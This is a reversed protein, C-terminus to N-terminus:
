KLTYPPKAAGQRYTSTFQGPYSISTIGTFAVLINPIPNYALM